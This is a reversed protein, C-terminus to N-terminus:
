GLSIEAYNPAQRYGTRSTRHIIRALIGSEGEVMVDRADAQTPAILAVRKAQGTEVWERIAEAGSRTKGAGRGAIYAWISWDGAPALQESRAISPWDSELVDAIRAFPALDPRSM